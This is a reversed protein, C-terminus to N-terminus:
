PAIGMLLRGLGEFHSYKRRDDAITPATEVPMTAKLTGAAM